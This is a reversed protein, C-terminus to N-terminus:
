HDKEDINLQDRVQPAPSHQPMDLAEAALAVMYEGNSLGLAQANRRLIEAFEISPKAM